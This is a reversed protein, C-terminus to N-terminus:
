SPQGINVEICYFTVLVYEGNFPVDNKLSIRIQVGQSIQVPTEFSFQFVQRPFMTGRSQRRFQELPLALETPTAGIAPTSPQAGKAEALIQSVRKYSFGGVNIWSSGTFEWYTYDLETPMTVDTTIDAESSVLNLYTGPTRPQVYFTSGAAYSYAATITKGSQSQYFLIQGTDWIVEYDGGSTAFPERMVAAVGNIQVQVQYGHPDSPNTAQQLQVWMSDNHMRGSTMDIWFQHASNFTLGDGSDILTESAVRVSDGFWTCQDSFNHSVLVWESTSVPTFTSQSASAPAWSSGDFELGILGSASSASSTLVTQDANFMNQLATLVDSNDTGAPFYGSVFAKEILNGFRLDSLTSDDISQVQSKFQPVPIASNVPVVLWFVGSVTFSGDGSPNMTIKQIVVKNAM